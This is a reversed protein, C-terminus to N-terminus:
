ECPLTLTFISGRGHVSEVRITGGLLDALRKSLHLGLGAGEVRRTNSADLQEFASFLRPLDEVAIGIGTDIVRIVATAGERLLEIRVAGRETYKIANSTLNILIQRIARGDSRVDVPDHTVDTTLDLGRETALTRLTTAVEGVLPGLAVPEVRLDPKGSDIRALDLIDNILSLLHRAGAQVIQLQREQEATLPGPLEMLLTGTFGIIANLPTRLEHSMSALFRDKALSATGLALNATELEANKRELTQRVRERESSDRIASAVLMGEGTEIPSLSIEVPFETGDKRRGRLELGAGMPRVRPAHFFGERHVPHQARFREPVLVEISRGLLEERGYGFLNEAQANVLVVEGRADVIVMADPASELLGRFMQTEFSLRADADVLPANALAARTGEDPSDPVDGNTRRGKAVTEWLLAM